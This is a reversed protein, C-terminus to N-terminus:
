DSELKMKEMWSVRTSLSDEYIPAPLSVSQAQSTSHVLGSRGAGPVRQPNMKFNEMDVVVGAIKEEMRQLSEKMTM